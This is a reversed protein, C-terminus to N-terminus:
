PRIASASFEALAAELRRCRSELMDATFKAREAVDEADLLAIRAETLRAEVIEALTPASPRVGRLVQLLTRPKKNM